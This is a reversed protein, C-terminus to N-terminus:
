PYEVLCSYQLRVQTGPPVIQSFDVENNVTDLTVQIPPNPQPTFTVIVQDDKPRCAIKVSAVRDVIAAGISGMEAGYDAACISGIHGETLNSLAMYADGYYASVGAQQYQSNKCTADKVVISHVSFTKSNSFKSNVLQVLTEPRDKSDFPYHQDWFSNSSRTQTDASRENEDAIIVLALHANPRIFSLENRNIAEWAAYIGREDGSPCSESAFNSQECGLTETRRITNLFLTNANPTSRAIYKLGPAYEILRGNQLAGNGNIPRPPNRDSQIDTTTIAIRYDLSQLSSIFNPFKEGMKQQEPYMSGSNDDIFLIDVLGDGTTISYDFVDYGDERRCEQPFGQCPNFNEDRDFEVPACGYYFGVVAVVLSFSRWASM